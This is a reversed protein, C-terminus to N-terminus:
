GFHASCATATATATPTGRASRRVYRIHTRPYAPLSRSSHISPHVSPIYTCTCVTPESGPRRRPFPHLTESPRSPPNSACLPTPGIEQPPFPLQSPLHLPLPLQQNTTIPSQLPPSPSPSQLTTTTISTWHIPTKPHTTITITISPSAGISFTCTPGILRYQTHHDSM